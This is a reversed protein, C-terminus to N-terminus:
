GISLYRIRDTGHNNDIGLVGVSAGIIAVVLGITLQVMTKSM